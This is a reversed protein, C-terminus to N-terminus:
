ASAAPGGLGGAFRVASRCLDDASVVRPRGILKFFLSQHWDNGTDFIQALHVLLVGGLRKVVTHVRAAIGFAGVM